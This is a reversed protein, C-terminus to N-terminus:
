AAHRNRESSCPSPRHAPAWPEYRTRAPVTTIGCALGRSLIPNRSSPSCPPCGCSQLYSVPCGPSLAAPPQLSSHTSSNPQEDDIVCMVCCSFSAMRRPLQHAAPHMSSSHSAQRTRCGSQDSILSRVRATERGRQGEAEAVVTHKYASSPRGGNTEVPAPAGRPVPGDAIGEPPVATREYYQEVRRTCQGSGQHRSNVM